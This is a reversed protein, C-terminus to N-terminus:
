HRTASLFLFRYSAFLQSNGNFSTPPVPAIVKNLCVSDVRAVPSLHCHFPFTHFTNFLATDLTNGSVISSSSFSTLSHPPPPVGFAVVEVVVRPSSLLLPACWHVPEHDCILVRPHTPVPLHMSHISNHATNGCYLAMPSTAWRLCM